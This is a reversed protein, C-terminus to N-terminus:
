RAHSQSLDEQQRWLKFLKQEQCKVKHRTKELKMVQHFDPPTTPAVGTIRHYNTRHVYVQQPSLGGNAFEESTETDLDAEQAFRYRKRWTAGGVRFHDVSLESM